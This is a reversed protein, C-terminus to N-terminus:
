RFRKRILTRGIMFGDKLSGLKAQNPRRRYLIPLEAIRYGQRAIEALMNAELEFGVADLKLSKPVEGRFGWYGTCPDSVRTGYLLNALLALLHNGVMNLRSMAGEERQGKLRSGLVVDYGGELLELMRPVYTAPYTFDADIMFVFDGSVAEFATRMARGKGRNPETIVRAGKAEAIERTKDTSGNDVVIIEARYGRGEIEEIPVEDIIKGITEQENLAPFIISVEKM